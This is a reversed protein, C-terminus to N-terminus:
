RAKRWEWPPIAASDHWLGLGRTRAQQEATTFLAREELAQEREYRKYHWALGARVQELCADRSDVYVRCIERGYRDVKYCSAIVPHNFLLDSLHQKSREGFPQRKEPADCGALRIKHQQNSDDLVTITDGDSV